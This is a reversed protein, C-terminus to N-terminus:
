PRGLLDVLAAELEPFAFVHGASALRASSARQGSLVLEARGSGLVLKLAFSPVRARAHTHLVKAMIAAEEHMTVPSPAVFNYPGVMSRSEIALWIAEVVDREHVWSVWQKGSGIPGGAHLRFPRAMEALGGGNRGLVIGLRPHVVRVGAARAPEAAAEWDVCLRALFGSAAPSDETQIEDDDRMGYIGVASASVLVSDPARTRAMAEAIALTVDIRSSRLEDMRSRTWAADMVGAGALNVVAAGGLEGEWARRTAGPSLSWPLVRASGGVEREARALDRALVVVLAGRSTLSPVLTRGLFGTGGVIVVKRV